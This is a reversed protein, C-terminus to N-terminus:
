NIEGILKQMNRARVLQIYVTFVEQHHAIFMGSCTCTSQLYLNLILIADLPNGKSLIDLHVTLLSCLFCSYM